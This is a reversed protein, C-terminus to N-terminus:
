YRRFALVANLGGFAFSNSIAFEVEAERACNPIYDLDCEPDRENFHITPPLIGGGLSLMTAAGEIAGAAGLTHGHMAKTSSIQLSTAHAGFALHLARTETPDNVTTGTGHANVYGIQEPAIGADRLAMRIAKAAGEASPQTVHHADSSMGFGVIEALPTAGRALARDLPEVVLMAAGEGLIMGNRDRSFPRCADPSIVRMAEWAKLVGYSFPAESGGTLVVDCMGSRVMAFAQGIAHASSSCATSITFAPGTIGFELSIASAGANAMTKPITMPHVRTKGMKYVDYFGQNETSQGGICSGTVIGANERLEDTWEIGSQAAAERAAVVALQAFRDLMDAQKLSFHDEANFCKVQAGNRFRLDTNATSAIGDIGCRGERLAQQFEGRNKGIACVVGIGTVAVRRGTGAGSTTAAM